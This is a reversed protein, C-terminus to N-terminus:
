GQFFDAGDGTRESQQYVEELYTALPEIDDVADESCRPAAEAAFVALRALTRCLDNPYRKLPSTRYSGDESRGMVLASPLAMRTKGHELVWPDARSNEAVSISLYHPSHHTETGGCRVAGPLDSTSMRLPAQMVVKHMPPALHETSSCQLTNTGRHSAGRDRREKRDISAITLAFQLLLNGIMVQRLERLRLVPIAWVDEWSSLRRVPRPGKFEEYFRFRSVSWTECPPGAVFCYVAGERARDTWFKQWRPALLDCKIPDLVVDLSVAGTQPAGTTTLDLLSYGWIEKCRLFPAGRIVNSFAEATWATCLWLLAGGPQAVM